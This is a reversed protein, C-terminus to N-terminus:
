GDVVTIGHMGIRFRAALEPGSASKILRGEFLTPDYENKCLYVVNDSFGLVASSSSPLPISGAAHNTFLVCTGHRRSITGLLALIDLLVQQRKFPEDQYLQFSTHMISDVVLLPIKDGHAQRKEVIELLSIMHTLSYCTAVSVANLDINGGSVQVLREPRFSHESDIVFVPSGHFAPNRLFALMALYCLETKGSPSPGFFQYVRSTEFGGSLMEDIIFLGTKVRLRTPEQLLGPIDSPGIIPVQPKFLRAIEAHISEAQQVPIDLMRALESASSFLLPLGFWRYGKYHSGLRAELMAQLQENM